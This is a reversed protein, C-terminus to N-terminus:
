AAKEELTTLRAELEEAARVAALTGIADIIQRGVEPAVQGAAIAALVAEVQTSVPAAPDFDFTVTRGESRLAPAVRSLVLGCATLDGALAADIVVRAVAPADDVLAQTVKTRRDVIGRPRGAPNPSKMGPAWKHPLEATEEVM